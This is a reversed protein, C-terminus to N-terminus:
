GTWNKKLNKWNFILSGGLILILLKVGARPSLRYLVYASLAAIAVEGVSKMDVFGLDAGLPKNTTPTVGIESQASAAQINGYGSGNVVQASVPIQGPANPGSYGIAAAAGYSLDWDRGTWAAPGYDIVPATVSLGNRLNTIKVMTGMPLDRSALGIVSPSNYPVGSATPQPEFTSALSQSMSGIM